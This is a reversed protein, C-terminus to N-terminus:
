SDTGDAVLIHGLLSSPLRGYVTLDLSQRKGDVEWLRLKGHEEYNAIYGASGAPADPSFSLLSSQNRNISLTETALNYTIVTQEGTTNSARLVIGASSNSSSGFSISTRLEYSTTKMMGLSATQGASLKNPKLTHHTAGKRLIELESAPRVGLAHVTYKGDDQATSWWSGKQTVTSSTVHAITKIFL